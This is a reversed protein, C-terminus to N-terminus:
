ATIEQATLQLNSPDLKETNANEGAASDDGGNLFTHAERYLAFRSQELHMLHTAKSIKVDRKIVSRKLAQFLWHADDDTVLSDWEQRKYM